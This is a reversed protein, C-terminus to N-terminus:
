LLVYGPGCTEFQRELLNDAYDSTKLTKAMRRYPNAKRIPCVLNYKRMLRQIKKRNFNIGIHLLRMRIGRSGKNYGRFQYAELIKKFDEQDKLEKKRMYSESNRKNKLWSYYGSRSVGAIDCLM